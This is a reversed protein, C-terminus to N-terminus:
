LTQLTGGRLVLLQGTIAYASEAAIRRAMEALETVAQRDESGCVMLQDRCPLAFVPDGALSLHQVWTSAILILSVDFFGDLEIRYRGDGGVITLASSRGELNALAHARLSAEDLGRLDGRTVYELSSPLDQAYTVILDGLLPQAILDNDSSNDSGKGSGKAADSSAHKNPDKDAGKGPGKDLAGSQQIVTALWETTKVVPMLLALDLGKEASLSAAAQRAAAIEDDFIASLAAVDRRYNTYANNLFQRMTGGDTWALHVGDDVRTVVIDPAHKRVYVAYADAFEAQSLYTDASPPETGSKKSGSKFMGLLKSLM